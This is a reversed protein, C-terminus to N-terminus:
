RQARCPSQGSPRWREPPPARARGAMTSHWGARRGPSKLQRCRRAASSLAAGALTTPLAAAVSSAERAKSASPTLTRSSLTCIVQIKSRCSNTWSEPFHLWPPAPLSPPSCFTLSFAGGDGGGLEGGGPGHAVGLAADARRAHRLPGGGSTQESSGLRM